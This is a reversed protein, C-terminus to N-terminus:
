PTNLSADPLIAFAVGGGKRRRLEDYILTYVNKAAFPSFGDFFGEDFSPGVYLGKDAVYYVPGDDFFMGFDGEGVWPVQAFFFGYAEWTSLLLHWKNQPYLDGVGYYDLADIDFFFGTVADGTDVIHGTLRLPALIRNLVRTLANPSIVDPVKFIRTRFAEQTEGSSPYIGRGDGILGLDDDRGLSVHRASTIAMGLDKFDRVAWEVSEAEAAMGEWCLPFGYGGIPQTALSTFASVRARVWFASVGNVAVQVQTALNEVVVYGLGPKAFALTGDQVGVAAVWAIGDWIEWALTYVGVGETDLRLGIRNIPAAAGFYMADGVAPAAPLLPVDGGVAESNAASTYDTFVGGDDQQVSKWRERVNLDDLVAYSPRINSGAPEEAGPWRFYQIRYLKGINNADSSFLIEAYLNADGAEFTSPIGSDKITSQGGQLVISAGGKSRGRSADELSLLDSLFWGAPLGKPVNLDDNCLFDINGCEGPIAKGTRTACEFMVERTSSEDRRAYEIPDINVYTREGPGVIVMRRAAVYLALDTSETRELTVSIKATVAFGAPPHTQLSHPWIYSEAQRRRAHRESLAALGGAAAQWVPKTTPSSMADREMPTVLNLMAQFVEDNTM